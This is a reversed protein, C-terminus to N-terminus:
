NEPMTNVPRVGDSIARLYDTPIYAQPNYLNYLSPNASYDYFFSTRHVFIMGLSLPLVYILCTYVQRLHDFTRLFFSYM